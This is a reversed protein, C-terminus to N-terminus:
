ADSSFAAMAFSAAMAPDRLAFTSSSADLMAESSASRLAAVPMLAFSAASKLASSFSSESTISMSPLAIPMRSRSICFPPEAKSCTLSAALTVSARLTNTWADTKLECSAAFSVAKTCADCCDSSSEASSSNPAGAAATYSPWLPSMMEVNSPRRSFASDCNASALFFSVEFRWLKSIIFCDKSSSIRNALLSRPPAFCPRALLPSALAVASPSRSTVVFSKFDSVLARASKCLSQM